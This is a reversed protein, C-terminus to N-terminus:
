WHIISAFVSKGNIYSELSKRIFDLSFQQINTNSFIHHQIYVFVLGVHIQFGNEWDRKCAIGSFSEESSNHWMEKLWVMTFFWVSNISFVNWVVNLEQWHYNCIRFNKEMRILESTYLYELEMEFKVQCISIKILKAKICLKGWSVSLM